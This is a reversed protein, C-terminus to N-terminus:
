AMGKALRGSVRASLVSFPKARAVELSQSARLRDRTLERGAVILALLYYFTWSFAVSAFMACVFWGILGATMAVTHSYLAQRDSDGLVYQLRDVSSKRRPRKLMRRTTAAAMVARVILFSFALLGVIGTEAAVQILVNHTERFRQQRGPPNYNKFQGAGVGTFPFQIFARIGEEMVSRRTERSGTYELQDRRADFITSMRDWFSAPMFATAVLMAVLVGVAFGPRVKRALFVLSVVMVALGLGGSRSQTLVITALMLAAIGAAALRRIASYKRTMAIIAAAPMFAVMNLALDNPNGFMGSVPGALRGGEILNNGRAYSAVALFAVYGCCVVILWTIQELRKPTTLTNMMLVFVIVIKIYMDTFVNVAGGPWVSFPATALIAMGFIILGSTEPTVRFVPQRRAFRHLLMPAIGIIACVEALHLPTLAPIQDQPRLLLAATFALL